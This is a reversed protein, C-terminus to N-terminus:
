EEGRGIPDPVWRLFLPLAARRAGESTAQSALYAKLVEPSFIEHHQYYAWLTILEGCHPPLEMVMRSMYLRSSGERGEQDGVEQRLLQEVAVKRKNITNLKYDFLADFLGIDEPHPPDFERGKGETLASWIALGIATDSGAPPAVPGKPGKKEKSFMRGLLSQKKGRGGARKATTQAAASQQSHIAAKVIDWQSGWLTRVVNERKPLNFIDMFYKENLDQQGVGGALIKMNRSSLIPQIFHNRIVDEVVTSFELSLPYPLLGDHPDLLVDPPQSVQFLALRDTIFKCLSDTFVEEFSLLDEPAPAPPAAAAEDPADVEAETDSIAAPEVEAAPAEGPGGGLLLGQLEIMRKRAHETFDPDPFGTCAELFVITQQTQELFAPDATADANGNLQAVLDDVAEDIAAIVSAKDSDPSLQALSALVSNASGAM